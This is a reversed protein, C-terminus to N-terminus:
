AYSPDRKLWSPMDKYISSGRMKRKVLHQLQYEFFWQAMVCDDYIYQDYLTVQKYLPDCTLRGAKNGPLRVRGYEYHTRITTVGLKPDLKNIHTHHPRFKISNDTMWNKFFKYQSMFKQAANSELIFYQVPIGLKKARIMWDVLLGEWEDTKTDYDLLDNAGMPTFVVDILYRNGTLHEQNPRQIYLWHQVSWFKTPSPDATIVSLMRWNKPPSFSKGDDTPFKTVISPLEGPGRDDDWCGEYETGALMGGDIFPAPVLVDEPDADEQQYLIRFNSTPRKEITRLERMPLRVPDLLCGGAEPDAPNYPKASRRHAHPDHRPDSPPLVVRCIEEYHAKYVIHFYKNETPAVDDEEEDLDFTQIEDEAYSLKNKCYHYIDEAGLRQGQLILLGGPELRTEAEDDYWDRFNQIKEARDVGLLDKRRFLDDWIVWNWRLGLFGADKGFATITAEKEDTSTEGHQAVTFQNRSWPAGISPDPRFVGYDAMLTSVADVGLGLALDESKAQQPIRRQLATRLRGTYTDATTQTSSGILGRISRSRCILWAPIDHTFLTSKGSGPPANVVGFEKHPTILKEKVTYAASEQWPSSIRGFFRHRFRGFDELCDRAIDSLEHPLLPRLQADPHQNRAEEIQPRLERKSEIKKGWQKSYGVKAAAAEQTLGGIRYNLYKSIEEETARTAM